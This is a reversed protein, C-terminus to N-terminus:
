PYIGRSDNCPCTKSGAMGSNMLSRCQWLPGHDSNWDQKTPLNDVINHMCVMGIRSSWCNPALAMM